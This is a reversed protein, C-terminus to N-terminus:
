KRFPTLARKLIGHMQAIAVGYNTIPVGCDASHRIRAKMERENLM